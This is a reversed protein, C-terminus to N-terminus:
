YVEDITKTRKTENLINPKGQRMWGRGRTENREEKERLDIEIESMGGHSVLGRGHVGRSDCLFCFLAGLKSSHEIIWVSSVYGLFVIRGFCVVPHSDEKFPGVM